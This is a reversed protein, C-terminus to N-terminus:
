PLTTLSPNPCPLQVYRAASLQLVVHPPSSPPSLPVPPSPPALPIAEVHRQRLLSVVGNAIHCIAFTDVTSLTFDIYLQGSGDDTVVSLGQLTNTDCTGPGPSFAFATGAAVGAGNLLLRVPLTVSLKAVLPLVL